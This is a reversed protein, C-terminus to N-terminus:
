VAKRLAGFQAGVKNTAWFAALAFIGAFVIATVIARIDM